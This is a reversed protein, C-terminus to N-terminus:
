IISSPAFKQVADPIDLKFAELQYRLYDIDLDKVHSFIEKIDDLDQFRDPANRYAFCKAVILDEPTIVPVLAFGLDIRNAQARQVADSVWPIEPLLIDILGTVHNPMPESTILCVSKRPKGHKGPPIFGIVPKLGLVTIANEAVERSKSIPSALLAFDVDKTFREQSRYLSAAHGGVLCFSCDETSLIKVIERLARLPTLKM